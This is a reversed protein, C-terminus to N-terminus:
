EIILDESKTKVLNNVIYFCTFVMNTYEPVLKSRNDDCFMRFQSFNSWLLHVRITKLYFCVSGMLNYTNIGGCLTKQIEVVIKKNWGLNSNDKFNM